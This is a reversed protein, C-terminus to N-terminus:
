RGRRLLYQVAFGGSVSLLVGVVGAVLVAWWVGSFAAFLWLLVVSVVGVTASPLLWHEKSLYSAVGGSILLAPLIGAVPFLSIWSSPLNSQTTAAAIFALYSTGLWALFAVLGLLTTRALNAM